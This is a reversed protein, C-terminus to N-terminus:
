TITIITKLNDDWLFPSTVHSIYAQKIIDSISIYENSTVHDCPYLMRFDSLSSAVCSGVIKRIEKSKCCTNGIFYKVFPLKLHIVQADIFHCFPFAEHM